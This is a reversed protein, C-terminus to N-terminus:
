LFRIHKISAECYLALTKDDNPKSINAQLLDQVEPMAEDEMTKTPQKEQDDVKKWVM